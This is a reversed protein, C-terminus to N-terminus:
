VGHISGVLNSRCRTNLDARRTALGDLFNTTTGSASASACASILLHEGGWGLAIQLIVHLDAISTDSCVLVRQWILPSVGRLIVRLQYVVSDLYANSDSVGGDHM